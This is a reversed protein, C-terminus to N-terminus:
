DFNKPILQFVNTLFDILNKNNDRMRHNLYIDSDGYSHFYLLTRANEEELDLRFAASASFCLLLAAIERALKFLKTFTQLFSATGSGSLDLQVLLALSLQALEAPIELLGVDLMLGRQGTQALLVVVGDGLHALLDVGEVLEFSPSNM